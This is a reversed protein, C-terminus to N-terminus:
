PTGMEWHNCPYHTLQVTWLCEHGDGEECEEEIGEECEEECEEESGELQLIEVKEPRMVGEEKMGDGEAMERFILIEEVRRRMEELKAKREKGNGIEKSERRERKKMDEKKRRERKMVERLTRILSKCVEPTPHVGDTTAEPCLEIGSGERMSLKDMFIKYSGNGDGM